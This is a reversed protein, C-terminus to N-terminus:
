HVKIVKVLTAASSTSTGVLVFRLSHRGKKLKKKLVIRVVGNHVTFTGLLKKGDYVKVVANIATAPGGSATFSVIISKVSVKISGPASVGTVQVPPAAAATVGSSTSSFSQFSVQHASGQPDTTVDPHHATTVATFVAGVDGATLTYGGNSLAVPAPAGGGVQRYLATSQVVFPSAYAAAVPRIVHGVVATGDVHGPATPTPAAASCSLQLVLDIRAPPVQLAPSTAGTCGSASASVEYYAPTVDWAFAGNADTTGPNVTNSPNMVTADGSAVAAYSGLGDESRLLTVTAGSIPRGYTDTVTGSPDIYINFAIPNPDGCNLPVNTTLVADGHNPYFAPIHASFHGAPGETLAGTAITAGTTLRVTYSPSPTGPCGTVSFDVPDGYYVSPIGNSTGNSNITVGAPPPTPAALEIPPVTTTAGGVVVATAGGGFLSSDPPWVTINYSGALVASFDYLGSASTTTYACNQTSSCAQVTAGAVPTTHDSARVVSGSLGGLSSSLGDNRVQWIYRGVQTSSQHGAILANPGGDLFSGPVLSGPLQVFTGPVGTGASFGVVASTGGLGGTGGSVDGTEWQVQDYNFVIDFDGAVRGAGTDDRKLLLQFTNLKDSHSNFYGVDPWKVCFVSGDPSSGYTVLGSGPSRTDVDAFFPAIMPNNTAGTIDSPTFQSQPGNFTINGNNNVYLETYPTGFFTLPFPIPVAGSSEDDNAALVTDNCYSLDQGAVTGFSSVAPGQAHSPAASVAVLAVGLSVTLTGACAAGIWAAVRRRLLLNM